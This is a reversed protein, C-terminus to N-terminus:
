VEGSEDEKMKVVGKAIETLYDYAIKPGDATFKQIVESMILCEVNTVTVRPHTYSGICLDLQIKSPDAKSPGVGYTLTYSDQSVNTYVTGELVLHNVEM